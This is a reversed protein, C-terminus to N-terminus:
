EYSIDREPEGAASSALATKATRSLLWADFAARPVRVTTGVRIAPLTGDSVWKYALSRSIRLLKAVEAVSYVVADEMDLSYVADM